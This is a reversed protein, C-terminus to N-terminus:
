RGQEEENPMECWDPIPVPEVNMFEYDFSRKSWGCGVPIRPRDRDQTAVFSVHPCESCSSIVVVKRM